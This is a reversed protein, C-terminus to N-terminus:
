DVECGEFGGPNILGGGIEDLKLTSLTGLSLSVTLIHLKPFPQSMLNDLLVAKQMAHQLHNLLDITNRTKWNTILCGTRCHGRAAESISPQDIALSSFNGSGLEDITHLLPNDALDMIRDHKRGFGGGNRGRGMRQIFGRVRNGIDDDCSPWVIMISRDCRESALIPDALGTTKRLGEVLITLTNHFLHETAVRMQIMTMPLIREPMEVLMFHQIHTKHMEDSNGLVVFKDRILLHLRHLWQDINEDLLFLNGRFCKSAV